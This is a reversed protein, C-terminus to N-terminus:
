KSRLVLAKTKHFKLRPVLYIENAARNLKIVNTSELAALFYNLRFGALASIIGISLFSVIFCSLESSFYISTMFYMIDTNSRKDLVCVEFM